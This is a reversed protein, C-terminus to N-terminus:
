QVVSYPASKRIRTKESEPYCTSDVKMALDARAFIYDDGKDELKQLITVYLPSKHNETILELAAQHHKDHTFQVRRNRKIRIAGLTAAEDLLTCVKQSPKQVLDSLLDV